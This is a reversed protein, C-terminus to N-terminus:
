TFSSPMSATATVPSGCVDPIALFGGFGNWITTSRGNINKVSASAVRVIRNMPIM